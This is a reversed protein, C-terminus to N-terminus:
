LAEGRGLERIVGDLLSSRKIDSRGKCHQSRPLHQLGSSFAIIWPFAVELAPGIDSRGSILSLRPGQLSTDLNGGLM